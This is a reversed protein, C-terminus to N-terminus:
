DPASNGDLHSLELPVSELPELRAYIGKHM